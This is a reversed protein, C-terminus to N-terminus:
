LYVQLSNQSLIMIIIIICLSVVLIFVARLILDIEISHISEKLLQTIAAFAKARISVSAIEKEDLSQVEDKKQVPRPRISHEYKDTSKLEGM